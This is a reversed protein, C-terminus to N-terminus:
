RVSRNRFEVGMCSELFKVKPQFDRVVKSTIDGSHMPGSCLLAVHDGDKCVKVVDTCFEADRSTRNSVVCQMSNRGTGKCQVGFKEQRALEDGLTEARVQSAILLAVALVLTRM